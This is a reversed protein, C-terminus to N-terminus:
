GANTAEFLSTVRACFDFIFSINHVSCASADYLRNRFQRSVAAYRSNNKYRSDKESRHLASLQVSLQRLFRFPCAWSLILKALHALSRGFSSTMPLTTQKPESTGQMGRTSIWNLKAQLNAGAVM